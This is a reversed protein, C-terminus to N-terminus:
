SKVQPYSLIFHVILQLTHAACPISVINFAESLRDRVCAEASGNDTVFANIKIGNAIMDNVVPRIHQDLFDAINRDSPNPISTIYYAVCKSIAVNTFKVGNCNTWGDFALTVYTYPM